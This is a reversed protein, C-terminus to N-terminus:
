CKRLSNLSKELNFDSVLTVLTSSIDKLNALDDETIKVAEEGEPDNQDDGGYFNGDEDVDEFGDDGDDGDEDDSGGAAYEKMLQSIKNGTSKINQQSQIESDLAKVLVSMIRFPAYTEIDFDIKLFLVFSM